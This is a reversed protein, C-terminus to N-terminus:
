VPGSMLAHAGTETATASLMFPTGPKGYSVHMRAVLHVLNHITKFMSLRYVSSPLLLCDFCSGNYVLILFVM